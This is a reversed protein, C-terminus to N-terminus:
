QVNEFRSPDFKRYIRRSSASFVFQSSEVDPYQDDIEQLEIISKTNDTQLTVKMTESNITITKISVPFGNANSYIGSSTTNTINIRTLLSLNYYYYGDISIEIMASTNPLIQNNINTLKQYELDAVAKAYDIYNYSAEKEKYLGDPNDVWKVETSLKGNKVSIEQFPAEGVTYIGLDSEIIDKERQYHYTLNTIDWIDNTLSALSTGVYRLSFNRGTIPHRASALWFYTWNQKPHFTGNNIEDVLNDVNFSIINFATFRSIPKRISTGLNVQIGKYYLPNDDDFAIVPNEIQPNNLFINFLHIPTNLSQLPLDVTQRSDEKQDAYATVTVTESESNSEIVSIEGDFELIDNIYIKVNNQNTIQSPTGDITRDLDDHKRALIFQAQSQEGIYHTILIADLNVDSVTINDIKVEFNTPKIPDDNIENYEVTLVRFDTKIKTTITELFRFDTDFVKAKIMTLYTNFTTTIKQLFQFDTNIQKIVANDLTIIEGETDDTSMFIRDEESLLDIYILNNLDGTDLKTRSLLDNLDIKLLQGDACTIYLYEFTENVVIDKANKVSETIEYAFQQPNNPDTTDVVVLKIPDTDTIYILPNISIIKNAFPANPHSFIEISDSLYITDSKLIKDFEIQDSLIITDSRVIVDEESGFTLLSNNESNYSAKIWDIGRDSNSIRVEEILGKWFRTAISPSSGIYTASGNFILATGAKGQSAKQTDNVYLKLTNGDSTITVRYWTDVVADSTDNVITRISSVSDQQVCGFRKDVSGYDSEPDIGILVDDNWGSQDNSVIQHADTDIITPKVWSEITWNTMTSLASLNIYSEGSTGFNVAKGIKGSQNRLLTGSGTGDQDNSTSDFFIGSTENLHYIGKFNSDYVNEPDNEDSATSGGYYIYFETDISDSITLLKVYFEAEENSNDYRARDFKLKTEGDSTTFTIDTGDTKAKSFDFNTNRLRILVPFNSLSSDIKTHDVTLKKRYQYDSLFAM